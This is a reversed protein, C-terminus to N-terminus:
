SRAVHRAALEAELADIVAHLERRRTSTERELEGLKAVTRELDEDALTPLNVLTADGILYELGRKWEINPAPALHRPLRSQGPGPRPPDDALIKPLAALLDGGSGGAARRDLEAKVIAIRAQALRRVYSFETEVELCEEHMTRLEDLPRDALRELYTPDLIVDVRRRRPQSM